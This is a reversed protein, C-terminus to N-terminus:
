VVQPWPTLGWRGMMLTDVFGVAAQAVQAGALPLALALFAQVESGTKAQAIARDQTRMSVIVGLQTFKRLCPM